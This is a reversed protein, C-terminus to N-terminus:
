PAYSKQGLNYKIWFYLLFLLVDLNFTLLKVFNHVDHNFLPDAMSCLDNSKSKFFDTVHLQQARLSTLLYTFNDVVEQISPRVLPDKSIMASLFSKVLKVDECDGSREINVSASNDKHQYLYLGLEMGHVPVYSWQRLSYIHDLILQVCVISMQDNHM